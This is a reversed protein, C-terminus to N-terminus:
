FLDSNSFSYNWFADCYSFFSKRVGGWVVVVLSTDGPPGRAVLEENVYLLELRFSERPGFLVHDASAAPLDPM